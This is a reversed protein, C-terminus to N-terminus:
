YVYLLALVCRYVYLMHYLCVALGLYTLLGTLFEMKPFVVDLMSDDLLRRITGCIIKIIMDQM